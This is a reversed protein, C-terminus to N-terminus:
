PHDGVYLVRVAPCEKTAGEQQVVVAPAMPHARVIECLSAQHM